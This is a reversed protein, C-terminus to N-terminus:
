PERWRPSRAFVNARLRESFLPVFAPVKVNSLQGLSEALFREITEVGFIGTFEKRLRAAAAKVHARQELPQLSISEDLESM